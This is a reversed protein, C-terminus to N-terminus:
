IDIIDLQMEDENTNNRQIYLKGNYVFYAENQIMYKNFPIIYEQLIDFHKDLVLLSYNRIESKIPDNLEYDFHAIPLGVIRYYQNKKKNFLLKHYIFSNRAQKLIERENLEINQPAMSELRKHVLKNTKEKKLSSGAYVKRLLQFDQDYVYLSDLNPYNFVFNNEHDYVYNWNGFGDIGYFGIVAEEPVENMYVLEEKELDFSVNLRRDPMNTYYNSAIFQDRKVRIPPLVNAYFLPMGKELDDKFSFNRVIELNQNLLFLNPVKDVYLISDASLIHVSLLENLGDKGESKFNLTKYLQGSDLDFLKLSNDVVNISTVINRGDFALVQPYTLENVTVSDVEFIQTGAIPLEELNSKDYTLENGSCGFFLLSIIAGQRLLTKM